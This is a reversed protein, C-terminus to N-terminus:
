QLLIPATMVVDAVVNLLCHAIVSIYINKKWWVFYVMPLIALLRLPILWPSWFHYVVMLLSGVLPAAWGLYAM